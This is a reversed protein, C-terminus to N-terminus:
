EPSSIFYERIAFHNRSLFIGYFLDFKQNNEFFIFVFKYFAYFLKSYYQM